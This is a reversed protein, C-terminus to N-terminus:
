RACSFVFTSASLYVRARITDIQCTPPPLSSHSRKERTGSVEVPGGHKHRCKGEQAAPSRARGGCGQTRQAHITVHYLESHLKAPGQQQSAAVCFHIAPRQVNAGLQALPIVACQRVIPVTPM